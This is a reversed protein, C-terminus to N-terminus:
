VTEIGSAGIDVKLNPHDNIFATVLRQYGTHTVPYRVTHKGYRIKTAGHFLSRYKQAVSVPVPNRNIISIRTVLVDEAKEDGCVVRRHM